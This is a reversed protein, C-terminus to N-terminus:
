VEVGISVPGFKLMYTLYAVNTKSVRRIGRIGYIGTRYRCSGRRNM